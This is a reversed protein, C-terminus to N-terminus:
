ARKRLTQTAASTTWTKKLADMLKSVEGHANQIQQKSGRPYHAIYSHFRYSADALQELLEKETM